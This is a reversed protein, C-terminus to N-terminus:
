KITYIEKTINDMIDIKFIGKEKSIHFKDMTYRSPTGHSIDFFSDIIFIRNNNQSYISDVTLEQFSFFSNKLKMPYEEYDFSFLYHISDINDDFIDATYLSDNKLGLYFSSDINEDKPHILNVKYFGISDKFYCQKKENVLSFFVDGKNITDTMLNKSNPFFYINLCSLNDLVDSESLVQLNKKHTCCTLFPLLVIIIIESVKM